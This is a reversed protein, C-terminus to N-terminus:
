AQPGQGHNRLPGSLRDPRRPVIDALAQVIRAMDQELDGTPMFSGVIRVQRRQYCFGIVVIPIQMQEAIRYFGTKWREAGERTGEPALGLWFPKERMVATTQDVVDDASDRNVPIGGLWVMLRGLRGEFLTHKAMFKVHVRLSQIASIGIVGDMNSTHPAVALVAREVNPLTGVVRWGMAALIVRGLGALLWHGRRPVKDGLTKAKIPPLEKKM